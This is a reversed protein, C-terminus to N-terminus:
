VPRVSVISSLPLTREVDAARDRGRLRGGGLGAAELTVDRTSGDPMRVTIGITARTRVAQELERELWAADADESLSAKLTEILPRYRDSASPEPAATEAVEHRGLARPAGDADVALVPYRADSLMWFTTDASTRTVLDEGDPVLGLPRLAQDVNIAELLDRDGSVRTDGHRDLGVRLTGHRTAAREIEYALPQPVGTLSLETLFATLSAATEGGAFAAGITDATFRYTAAQARSERRATTRLRLDLQPELPGPAIATLDNQLYVKDVEHPLLSRLADADADKGDALETAWAPPTGDPTFMAWQTLMAALRRVREPWAPDFPHAGPWDAPKRWGGDPSRLSHPLRDRLRHAVETWREVTRTGLWTSGAQTITWNRDSGALLGTEAAIAVLTDADDPTAAAGAEVLRRRDGASLAGSGIRGLPTRTAAHLIDALSAVADFAREASAADSEPEGEFVAPAGVPAASGLAAAVADYPRGTEDALARAVLGARFPQAVPSSRDVAERLAAAELDSVDGFARTLQAPDLLSDAADFFDTWSTNPAIHRADFLAALADPDLTALRTALARADSATM